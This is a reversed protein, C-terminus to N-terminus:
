GRMEIPKSSDYQASFSHHAYITSSLHFLLAITGFVRFHRNTMKLGARMRPNYARHATRVRVSSRLGEGSACRPEQRYYHRSTRAGCMTPRQQWQPARLTDPTTGTAAPVM